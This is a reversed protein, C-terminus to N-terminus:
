FDFDYRRRRRPAAAQAQYEADALLAAAQADGAEMAACLQGFTPDAPLRGLFRMLLAENQMFRELAEDVDVGAPPLRERKMPDM